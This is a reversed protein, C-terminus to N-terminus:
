GRDGGVIRELRVTCTVVNGLRVKRADDDSLYHFVSLIDADRVRQGWISALYADELTVIQLSPVNTVMSAIEMPKLFVSQGFHITRLMKHTHFSFASILSCGYNSPFHINCLTLQELNTWSKMARFLQEAAKPVIQM